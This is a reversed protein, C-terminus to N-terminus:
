KGEGSNKNEELTNLVIKEFENRFSGETPLMVTIWLMPNTFTRGDKKIYRTKVENFQFIENNGDNSNYVCAMNFTKLFEYTIDLDKFEPLTEPKLTDLNLYEETKDKEM